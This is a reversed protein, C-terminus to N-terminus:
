AEKDSQKSPQADPEKPDVQAIHKSTRKLDGKASRVYSGGKSPVKPVTM